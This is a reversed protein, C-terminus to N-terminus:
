CLGIDARGGSLIKDHPKNKLNRHRLIVIKNEFFCYNKWYNITNMKYKQTRRWGVPRYPPMMWRRVAPETKANQRNYIFLHTPISVSKRGNKLFDSLKIQDHGGKPLAACTTKIHYCSYLPHLNSITLLISVTFRFHRKRVAFLGTERHSFPM